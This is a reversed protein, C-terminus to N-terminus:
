TGSRVWFLRITLSRYYVKLLIKDDTYNFLKTKSKILCVFSNLRVQQGIKKILDFM